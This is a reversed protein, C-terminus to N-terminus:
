GTWSAKWGNRVEMLCRQMWSGGRMGALAAGTPGGGAGGHWHCFTTASMSARTSAARPASAGVMLRMTM